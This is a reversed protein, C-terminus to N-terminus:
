TNKVTNFNSIFPSCAKLPLTVAGSFVEELGLISEANIGNAHLVARTQYKLSGVVVFTVLDSVDEIVGQM